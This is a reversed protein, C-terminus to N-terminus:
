ETNEKAFRSTIECFTCKNNRKVWEAPNDTIGCYPCAFGTNVWVSGNTGTAEKATVKEFAQTNNLLTKAEENEWWVVQFNKNHFRRVDKHPLFSKIGDKTVTWTGWITPIRLSVLRDDKAFSDLVFQESHSHWAMFRIGLASFNPAPKFPLPEAATWLFQYKSNPDSLKFGSSLTTESIVPSDKQVSEHPTSHRGYGIQQRYMFPRRKVEYIKSIEDKNLVILRDDNIKLFNVFKLAGFKATPLSKWISGVSSWLVIKQEPFLFLYLDNFGMRGLVLTETDYLPWAAFTANGSLITLYKLSESVTKGQSLVMPIALTDVELPGKDAKYYKFLDDDNTIHGNHVVVWDGFNVPHNNGNVKESGKTSARAHVLVTHSSQIREWYGSAEDISKILESAPGQQKTIIIDGGELFALGAADKGRAENASLLSKIIEISPREEGWARYGAIGCM